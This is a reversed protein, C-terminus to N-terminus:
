CDRGISIASIETCCHLCTSTTASLLMRRIKSASNICASLVLTCIHIVIHCRVNKQEALTPLSLLATTGLHQKTNRFWITTSNPARPDLMLYHFSHQHSQKWAPTFLPCKTIQSTCPTKCMATIKKGLLM